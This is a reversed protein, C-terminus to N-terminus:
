LFESITKKSFNSMWFQCFQKVLLRKNEEDWIHYLSAKSKNSGDFEFNALIKNKDVQLLAESEVRLPCDVRKLGLVMIESQTTSITM